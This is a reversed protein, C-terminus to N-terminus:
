NYIIYKVILLFAIGPVQFIGAFFATIPNLPISINLLNGALNFLILFFVGAVFQFILKLFRSARSKLAVVIMLLILVVFLFTLVSSDLKIGM